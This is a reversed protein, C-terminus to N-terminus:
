FVLTEWGPALMRDAFATSGSVGDIRAGLEAADLGWAALSAHCAHFRAGADRADTMFAAIPRGGTPGAVLGAAVDGALLEVSRAAFHIEVEADMAAAAAAVAFPTACVEPRSPDASWLLLALCRPAPAVSRHQTPVISDDSIRELLRGSDTHPILSGHRSSTTRDGPSRLSM